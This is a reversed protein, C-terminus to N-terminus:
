ESSDFNVWTTGPTADTPVFTVCGRRNRYDVAIATLDNAPIARTVVIVRNHIAGEDPIRYYTLNGGRTSWAWLIYKGFSDPMLWEQSLLVETSSHATELLRGTRYIVAM